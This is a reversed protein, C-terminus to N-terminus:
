RVLKCSSYTKLSFSFFTCDFHTKCVCHRVYKKEQQQLQQEQNKLSLSLNLCAKTEYM